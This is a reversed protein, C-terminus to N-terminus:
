EDDTNFLDDTIYEQNTEWDFLTAIKLNLLELKYNIIANTQDNKAESLQEQYQQLDMSTLDGNEYRQANIDYTLQANEVNIDAIRIQIWQNDLSRCLSRIDKTITIRENDLDLEASEVDIEASRIKAKRAGWDWIPVSFTLSVNPTTTPEDYIHPIEENEGNLGVALTLDGSFKDVDKTSILSLRATEISIQKQRLESRVSLAKDVAQTANVSISDPTVNVVVDFEYDFGVGLLVRFEDKTDELSVNADKLSSESTVLNVVAQYLEEKAELGAEVKNKIINYSKLQNDYESQATILSMQKKYVNYFGQTVNSEMNLKVLDYSLQANELDLKLQKLDNKQTNSQFLPQTLSLSLDNFYDASSYDKTINEYKKWGFYDTLRLEANTLLIPQSIAFKGSSEYDETTQWGGQDDQYSDSYARTRSYQFPTLDLNFQTKLSAEQAKLNQESKEIDMYSSKLDPSYSAALDMAKSLTLLEQASLSTAIFLLFILIYRNM